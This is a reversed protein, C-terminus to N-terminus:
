AKPGARLGSWFTGGSARPPKERIDGLEVTRRAPNTVAPASASESLPTTEAPDAEPKGVAGTQPAPSIRLEAPSQTWFVVLETVWAGFGEVPPVEPPV